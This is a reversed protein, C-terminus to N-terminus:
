SRKERVYPVVVVPFVRRFEPWGEAAGEVTISWCVGNHASQFSHMATEPVRFSCEAQFPARTGSASRETRLVEVRVVECTETRTHTGQRYTAEERCVLSVSLRQFPLRGPQLVLLEYTEGPRLPHDSIEVLTPGIVGTVLLERVFWALLGLGILVAPASFVILSWDPGDSALSRIALVAMVSAIGNWVFAALLSAALRWGPSNGIPLRYKLHTGPSNTIDADSPVFPFEPKYRGHGLLQVPAVRQSIVARQEASESWHLLTYVVGGCGTLVFAAWAVMLPWVWWSYGCVVVAISPDAPDYWCPYERPNNPDVEFSALRAEQAAGDPVFAWAIDFTWRRFVRDGVQYEILVEPRYVAGEDTERKVIRKDLVRCRHAVFGHNVRWEPIITTLLTAGAGVLGIVCLSCFFVLEAWRGVQHSDTRRNGRKKGYFRFRRAM